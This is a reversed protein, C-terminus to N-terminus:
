CRHLDSFRKLRQRKMQLIPIVIGEKLICAYPEYMYFYGLLQEIFAERERVNTIHM